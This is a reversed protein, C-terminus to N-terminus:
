RDSILNRLRQLIQEREASQLGPILLWNYLLCYLYCCYGNNPVQKLITLFLDCIEERATPEEQAIRTLAIIAMEVTWDMPGRALDFLVERRKSGIWGADINAMIYASSLQLMQVWRFADADAPPPPPSVMISLFSEIDREGFQAAIKKSERWNLRYDYNKAALRLVADRAAVDCNRKVAFPKTGEYRWLLHKVQQIPKRPDPSQVKLVSVEDIPALGCASLQLNMAMYCSPAELASLSMSAIKNNKAFENKDAALKYNEVLQRVVNAGAEKTEPLFGTYPLLLNNLEAARQNGSDALKLLQDVWAAEDTVKYRCYYVSPLAWNESPDIELVEQYRFLAKDWNEQDVYLDGLDLRVQIDDPKFEIAQMLAKEAGDFDDAFKCSMSLGVATLYSPYKEFLERAAILSDEYRGLKRLLACRFYFVNVNSVNSLRIYRNLLLLIKKMSARDAESNEFYDRYRKLLIMMSGLVREDICKLDDDAELWDFLWTDVYRADLKCNTVSLLSSVADNLRGQKAACYARVAEEAFSTQTAGPAMPLLKGGTSQILEDLLALWEQRGPDAALAWALHNASHQFDGDAFIRRALEFDFDAQSIGDPREEAGHCHDAAGAADQHKSNASASEHKDNRGLDNSPENNNAGFGFAKLLNKLWDM